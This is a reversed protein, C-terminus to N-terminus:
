QFIADIEATAVLTEEGTIPVPVESGNSLGNYLIVDHLTQDIEGDQYALVMGTPAIDEENENYSWLHRHEIKQVMRWPHQLLTDLLYFIKTAQEALIYPDNQYWYAGNNASTFYGM